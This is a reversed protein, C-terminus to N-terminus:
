EIITVSSDENVIEITLQLKWNAWKSSNGELDRDQLLDNIFADVLNEDM